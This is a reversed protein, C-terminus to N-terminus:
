KDVRVDVGKGDKADVFQIKRPQDKLDIVVRTKEDPKGPRVASVLVNKPIPLKDPFEWVGELDLAVRHPNDLVLTKYRVPANGTFRVTAGKERAFVVFNTITKREGKAPGVKPSPTQAPKAQAPVSKPAPSVVQKPQVPAPSAVPGPEPVPAPKPAPQLQPAPSVERAPEPAAEPKKEPTPEPQPVDITQTVSEGAIEQSGSNPLPPELPIQEPLENQAMLPPSLAERAERTELNEASQAIEQPTATPVPPTGVAEPEPIQPASSTAVPEADPKRGMRENLLVLAMGLVCVALVM